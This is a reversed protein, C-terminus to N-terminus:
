GALAPLEALVPLTFYFTTGQGLQSDLWFRGGEREVICKATLLGAGRGEHRVGDRMDAFMRLIRKLRENDIGIGNDEVSFLWEDGRKQADICIRPPQGSRFKLANGILAQFVMALPVAGIDVDPLAGCVIDAGSGRIASQMGSLVDLLVHGSQATNPRADAVSGGPSVGTAASDARRGADRAPGRKFSVM